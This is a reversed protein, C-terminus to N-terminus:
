LCVSFLKRRIHGAFLYKESLFIYKFFFYVNKNLKHANSGGNSPISPNKFPEQHM